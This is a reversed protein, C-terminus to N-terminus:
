WTRLAVNVVSRPATSGTRSAPPPRHGFAAVPSHSRQPRSVAHSGRSDDPPNRRVIKGAYHAAIQRVTRGRVGGPTRTVRMRLRARPVTVRSSVIATPAPKAATAVGAWALVGSGTQTVSGLFAVYVCM